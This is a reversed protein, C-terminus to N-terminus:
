TIKGYRGRLDTMVRRDEAYAAFRLGIFAAATLIGVAAIMGLLFSGLHFGSM